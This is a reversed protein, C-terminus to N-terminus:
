ETVETLKDLIMCVIETQTMPGTIIGCNIIDPDDYKNFSNHGINYFYDAWVRCEKRNYNLQLYEPSYFGNLKKSEGSVKKLGKM